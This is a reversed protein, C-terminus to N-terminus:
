TRVAPGRRKKRGGVELYEGGAPACVLPKFGPACSSSRLRATIFKGRDETAADYLILARYAGDVVRRSNDAWCSRALYPRARALYSPVMTSM